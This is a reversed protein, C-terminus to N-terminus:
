ILKSFVSVGIVTLIGTVAISLSSMAGEVKGMEMAKATGMAHSAAGIALGRAIPEDIKFIKCVFEAIIHGTIGTMICIPVTLSPIGGLEESLGMAMAATISKPLVTIYMTHSFRFIMCLLLIILLCAIVGSLIGLIIALLNQKLPKIQEYLPVALCITSPTLFYQFINAKEYYMSYDIRFFLIFLITIITSFFLPNFIILHTKKQLYKSLLYSSLSIFLAWYVTNILLAM